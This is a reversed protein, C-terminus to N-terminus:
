DTDVVNDCQLASILSYDSVKIIATKVIPLVNFVDGESFTPQATFDYEKVILQIGTHTHIHYYHLSYSNTSIIYCFIIMDCICSFCVNYYTVVAQIYIYAYM